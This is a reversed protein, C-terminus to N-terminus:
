IQYGADRFRKTVADITNVSNEREYADACRDDCFSDSHGVPAGCQWCPHGDRNCKDCENYTREGYINRVKVERPKGSHLVSHGHFGAAV